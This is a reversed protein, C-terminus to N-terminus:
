AKVGHRMAKDDGLGLVRPTVTGEPVAHLGQPGRVYILGGNGRQAFRAAYPAGREPTVIVPLSLTFRPTM